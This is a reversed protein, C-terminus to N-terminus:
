KASSFDKGADLSEALGVQDLALQLEKAFVSTFRKAATTTM